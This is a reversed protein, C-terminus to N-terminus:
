AAFAREAADIGGKELLDQTGDPMRIGGQDLLGVVADQQQSAQAFFQDFM